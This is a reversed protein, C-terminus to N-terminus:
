NPTPSPAMNSRASAHRTVKMREALTQQNLAHAKRIDAMRQAQVADTLWKKAHRVRDEDV